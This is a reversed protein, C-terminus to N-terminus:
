IVFTRNMAFKFMEPLCQSDLIIKSIKIYKLIVTLLFSLCTQSPLFFYYQLLIELVHCMVPFKVSISYMYLVHYM